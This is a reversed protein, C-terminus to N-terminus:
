HWGNCSMYVILGELLCALGFGCWVWLCVWFCCLIGTSGKLSILLLEVCSFLSVMGGVLFGEFSVPRVGMWQSCSGCILPIIVKWAPSFLSWIYYILCFRFSWSVHLLHFCMTFLLVLGFLHLSFLLRNSLSLKLNHM